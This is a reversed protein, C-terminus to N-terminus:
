RRGGEWGRELIRLSWGKEQRGKWVRVGANDLQRYSWSDSGEKQNRGTKGVAGAEWTM